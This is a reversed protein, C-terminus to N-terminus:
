GVFSMSHFKEKLFNGNVVMADADDRYVNEAIKSLQTNLLDLQEILLQKCPKGGIARPSAPAVQLTGSLLGPPSVRHVYPPWAAFTRARFHGRLRRCPRRGTPAHM